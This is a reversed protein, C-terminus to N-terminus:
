TSTIPVHQVDWSTFWELRKGPTMHVDGDRASSIPLWCLRLLNTSCLQGWELSLGATCVLALDWYWKDPCSGCISFQNKLQDWKPLGGWLNYIYYYWKSSFPRFFTHIQLVVVNEMLIWRLHLNYIIYIGCMHNTIIQSEQFMEVFCASTIHRPVHQSVTGTPRGPATWM